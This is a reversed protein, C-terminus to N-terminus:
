FPACTVTHQCHDAASCWAGAPWYTCSWTGQFRKHQDLYLNDMLGCESDGAGLAQAEAGAGLQRFFMIGCISTGAVWTGIGFRNIPNVYHLEKFEGKSITIGISVLFALWLALDAISLIKGLSGLFFPMGFYNLLVGQTVIGFAMVAAMAATNINIQKLIIFVVAGIFLFGLLLFYLM